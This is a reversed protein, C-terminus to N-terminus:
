DTQEYGPEWPLFYPFSGTRWEFRRAVRAQCLPDDAVSIIIM